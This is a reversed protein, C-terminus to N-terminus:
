YFVLTKDKSYKDRWSTVDSPDERVAGKIKLQSRNWNGGLRVDIIIVDPSDLMGKVEEKTIRPVEEAMAMWSSIVVLVLSFTVALVATLERRMTMRRRLNTKLGLWGTVYWPITYNSSSSM